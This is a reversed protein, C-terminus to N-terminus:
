DLLGDIPLRKKAGQAAVPRGDPTFGTPAGTAQDSGAPQEIAASPPADLGSKRGCGALTLAAAAVVVLAASRAFLRSFPGTVCRVGDPHALM